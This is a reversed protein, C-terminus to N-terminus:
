EAGNYYNEAPQDKLITDGRLPTYLFGPDTILRDQLAEFSKRILRDHNIGAKELFENLINEFGDKRYTLAARAM